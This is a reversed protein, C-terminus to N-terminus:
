RLLYLLGLFLISSLLVIAGLVNAKRTNKASNYHLAPPRDPNRGEIGRMRKTPRKPALRAFVMGEEIPGPFVLADALEEDSM